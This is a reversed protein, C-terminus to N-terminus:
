IKLRGAALTLGGVHTFGAAKLVQGAATLTVGSTFIDDVLLIASSSPVTKMIEFNLLFANALNIRRDQLSLNWNYETAKMRVLLEEYRLGRQKSWEKFLLDVQNFGRERQRKAHLPVPVVVDYSKLWDQPVTQLLFQLSPVASKRGNFKLQRLSQRVIGVYPALAYVEKLM